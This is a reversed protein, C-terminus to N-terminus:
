SKLFLSLSLSLSPPSLLFRPSSLQRRLQFKNDDSSSHTGLWLLTHFFTMNNHGINPIRGDLEEAVGDMGEEVGKRLLDERERERRRSKMKIQRKKAAKKQKKKKKRRSIQKRILGRM